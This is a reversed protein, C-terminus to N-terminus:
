DKEYPSTVKWVMYFKSYYALGGTKKALAKAQLENM